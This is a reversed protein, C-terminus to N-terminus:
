RQFVVNYSAFVTGSKGAGFALKGSGIKHRATLSYDDEKTLDNEWSYDLGLEVEGIMFSVGVSELTDRIAEGSDPNKESWGLNGLVKLKTPAPSLLWSASVLGTKQTSAERTDVYQGVLTLELKEALQKDGLPVTYAGRLRFQDRDVSGDASGINLYRLDLAGNGRSAGVMLGAILAGDADVMSPTLYFKVQPPQQPQQARLQARLLAGGGGIDDTVLDPTVLSGFDIGLQPVRVETSDAQALLSSAGTLLIVLLCASFRLSKM